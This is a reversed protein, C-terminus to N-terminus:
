KTQTALKNWGLLANVFSCQGFILFFNKKKNRKCLLIVYYDFFLLLIKGKTNLGTAILNSRLKYVVNEKVSKSSELELVTLSFLTSFSM